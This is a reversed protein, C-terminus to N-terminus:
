NNASGHLKRHERTTVDLIFFGGPKLTQHVNHLLQHREDPSLPCFDGYILLVADYQESDALHLYNQYGHEISRRSYDVGTVKLGHQVLQAAYLGPGCGLDLVASGAGFGLTEVLWSVSRVITEPRRSALDNKPNL